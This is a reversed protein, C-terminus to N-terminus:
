SLRCDSSRGCSTSGTLSRLAPGASIRRGNNTIVLLQTNTLKYTHRRVTGKSYGTIAAIHDRSATTSGETSGILGLIVIATWTAEPGVMEAIEAAQGGEIMSWRDIEEIESPHAPRHACATTHSPAETRGDM